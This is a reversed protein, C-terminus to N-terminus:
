YSVFPMSRVFEGSSVQKLVFDALDVRGISTSAKVGVWGVRYQGKAPQTTLRPGRVITWGLGSARLVEAHEIADHLVNPVFVRMIGRILQDALKPQDKEFPRGGGSLSVIRRM